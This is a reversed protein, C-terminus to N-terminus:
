VCGSRRARRWLTLLATPLSECVTRRYPSDSPLGAMLRAHAKVLNHYPLSPFMHHLAHFRLGVPAWLAGTVPHNPYNLSDVLQEVFSVEEGRHQYRHAGLTRLSNLLLVGVSILYMDVVMMFSRLGTAVAAITGIIMLFCGVEQWRWIRLEGRRPLPRVFTPDIVMASAHQYVWNRTRPSIWTLPALVLFRFIAIVPVVFPQCLYLLINRAPGNALPLYEGDDKTGYHKRVHHLTHTQYLFSPILFPIGCLLNWAARFATFRDGRLHVVEHSFMAARYVALVAVAYVALWGALNLPARRLVLFAGGGVSISLLFDTWYIALRPEFLDAILGRAERLSFDGERHASRSRPAPALVQRPLIPPSWEPLYTGTYNTTISV